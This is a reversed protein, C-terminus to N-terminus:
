PSLFRVVGTGLQRRVRNVAKSEGVSDRLFFPCYASVFGSTIHDRSLAISVPYLLKRSVLLHDAIATAEVAM